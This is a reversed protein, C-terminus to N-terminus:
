GKVYAGETAHGASGAGGGDANFDPEAPLFEWPTPPGLPQPHDEFPGYGREQQWHHLWAAFLAEQVAPNSYDLPAPPGIPRDYQPPPLPATGMSVASPAPMTVDFLLRGELWEIAAPQSPLPRHTTVKRWM